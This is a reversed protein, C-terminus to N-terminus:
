DDRALQEKLQNRISSFRPDASLLELAESPTMEHRLAQYVRRADDMLKENGTPTQIWVLRNPVGEELLTLFQQFDGNVDKTAAQLRQLLSHNRNIVVKGSTHDMTWVFGVDEIVGSGTPAQRTRSSARQRVNKSLQTLRKKFRVPPRAQSKKIDIKWEDDAVSTFELSLRAQQHSEDLLWDRGGLGLWGGAVLIRDNRYVYFGQQRRWGKPGGLYDAHAPPLAKPDPMVFGQLKVVGPARQLSDVPTRFIYGEFPNWEKIPRPGAATGVMLTLRPPDGKLFRHFVMALHKKTLEISEFFNDRAAESDDPTLRDLSEWLVLTGSDMEELRAAQRSGLPTLDERLWWRDHELVYDLDWTRHITKGDRKTVVTLRKCQSFSATKLGFGFKGLDTAQRKLGPGHGGIRLALILEEELMGRGNDLLSISSEAGEWSFDMWVKDAGASISNDILDAIAAELGYGLGRLSAMTAAACPPIEEPM